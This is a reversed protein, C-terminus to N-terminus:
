GLLVRHTYNASDRSIVLGDVDDRQMAEFARGYDAENVPSQLFEMRIPINLKAAAEMILKVLPSEQLPAPLLM